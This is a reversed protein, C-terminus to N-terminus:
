ISISPGAGGRGAAPPSRQAIPGARPRARSRAMATPGGQGHALIAEAVEPTNIRNSAAVPIGVVRRVRETCGVFAARPASTAITPGRAEHRGIATTLMDAGAGELAQALEVVEAQTMGGPALDMMSMRLILLFDPGVTARIRRVTEMTFRRRDEAIDQPHLLRKPPILAAGEANPAIRRHLHARGQGAGARRLLRRHAAPGRSGGARHAHVGHHGPQAPYRPGVTVASALHRFPTM